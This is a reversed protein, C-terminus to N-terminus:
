STAPILSQSGILVPSEIIGSAGYCIFFMDSDQFVVSEWFV